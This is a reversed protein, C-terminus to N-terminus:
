VFALHRLLQEVNMILRGYLIIESSTLKKLLTDLDRVSYSPQGSELHFDVTQRYASCTYETECRWFSGKLTIEISKIPM